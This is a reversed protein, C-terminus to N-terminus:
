LAEMMAWHVDKTWIIYNLFYFATEFQCSLSFWSKEENRVSLEMSIEIFIIILPSSPVEIHYFADICV